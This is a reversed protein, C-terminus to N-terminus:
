YNCFFLYYKISIIHVNIIIIIFIFEFFFFFENNLNVNLWIEKNIIKESSDHMYVCVCM